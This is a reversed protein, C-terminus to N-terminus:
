VYLEAMMWTPKRKASDAVSDNKEQERIKQGRIKSIRGHFHSGTHQYEEREAYRTVEQRCNKTQRGEPILRM